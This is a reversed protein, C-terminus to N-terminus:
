ESGSSTSPNLGTHHAAFALLDACEAALVSPPKGALGHGTAAEIRALVPAEGGQAAQLAATFKYSHAPVVRDDHDSTLVLTAPYRTGSTINHLPSWALIREFDRAEDPNGYDSIWARGITFRHFRLADLVGVHPLAVGFLDPRQTIAAGVLLGGNSKGHIALQAPSTVGDAVLQEAVAIVDDFVHQKHEKIGDEYWDRGFEGGGRLNAIVLVGGAALWGPWTARHNLLVPSDFGGYGYLMTPRPEALDVGDPIVLFYPVRTGDASTARHRETRYGPSTWEGAPGPLHRLDGTAADLRWSDVPETLTSLGIFVEGSSARANLVDVVGDPLEVTGLEQGPAAQSGLSWRRLVSQADELTQVVLAEGALVAESIVARGEPVAERLTWEDQRLAVVRGQPADDDTHFYLEGARTGLYHWAATPKDILELAEPDVVSRGGQERVPYLWIRNTRETGRALHAVLWRDDDSLELWPLVEPDLEFDAFAVDQSPDDGIRHIMLQCGPLARTETGDARGAGPFAKYVYAQGDPLWLAQSFKTVTEVDDVAEGSPTVISIRTWDSGADSRGVAILSAQSNVTLFALSSSGDEAWDNPDLLVRGGAQLEALSDAVHVVAQNRRGDHREQLYMGQRCFPTQWRPRSTVHAMVDDFFDRASLGSLQEQAFARQEAVWQRTRESDVDELWRYPDSVRHGHLDEVVDDTTTVPPHNRRQTM